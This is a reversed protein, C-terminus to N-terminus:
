SMFIVHRRVIVILIQLTDDAGDAAFGFPDCDDHEMLALRFRRMLAIEGWGFRLRAGFDAGRCVVAASMRLHCRRYVSAAMSPTTNGFSMDGHNVCMPVKSEYKATEAELFDITKLFFPMEKAFYENFRRFMPDTKQDFCHKLDERWNKYLEMLPEQQCGSGEPGKFGYAWAQFQATATACGDFAAPTLDNFEWSYPERGKIVNFVAYYNFM